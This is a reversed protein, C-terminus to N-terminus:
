NLGMEFLLAVAAQSEQEPEMYVDAKGVWTVYPLATTTDYLTVEMSYGEGRQYVLNTRKTLGGWAPEISETAFPDSGENSWEHEKVIAGVMRVPYDVSDM